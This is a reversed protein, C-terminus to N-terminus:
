NGNNKEKRKKLIDHGINIFTLGIMFCVVSMIFHYIFMPRGLEQLPVSPVLIIKAFPALMAIGLIQYVQASYKEEDPIM